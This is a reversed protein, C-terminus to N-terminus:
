DKAKPRRVYVREKYLLDTVAVPEGNSFAPRWVARKIANVVAREVSERAPDPNAVTVGRVAGDAAVSIRMEVDQEVFEEGDEGHRSVAMPPPRYAVAVPAQLLQTNGARALDKWADRYAAMARVGVGATMYWDGLDVLVNGRLAPQAAPAKDLRLLAGRLAREGEASPANKMQVLADNSFTPPFDIASAASQESEGNVFALRFSRAIGRLAPVAKVNGAQAADAIQVARGHLLRAATYRGITENWRAYSDLPRLLRLDDKGYATEAVNYAYQQERGADELRGAAIYCDILDDLIPLQSVAHLGDRNRTIDVARKLPAIAEEDRKLGRLAAGMGHLPRVLKPDTTDGLLDLLTLAQRYTDLATGYERMRLYTTALNSLPNAMERAEAGYQNRTLEVVRAAVPLATTFDGADFAARFQGYAAARDDPVADAAFTQMALALAL